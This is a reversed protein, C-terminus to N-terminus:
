SLISPLHHILEDLMITQETRNRMNRLVIHNKAFEEPAFIICFKSGSSNEMQKKLSKATLDINVAM